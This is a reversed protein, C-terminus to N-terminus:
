YWDPVPRDTWSLGWNKYQRYYNRYAQVHDGEVKCDDPMSQPRPTMEYSPFDIDRDVLNKAVKDHSKHIGGYRYSYEDGLAMAHTLTDEFNCQSERVWDIIPHGTHTPKYLFDWDYGMDRLATSLIQNVEVNIKTVHKDCYYEAAQRHDSDLWFINM